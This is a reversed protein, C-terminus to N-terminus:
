IKKGEGLSNARVPARPHAVVALVSGYLHLTKGRSAGPSKLAQGRRVSFKWKREKAGTGIKRHIPYKFRRHIHDFSVIM